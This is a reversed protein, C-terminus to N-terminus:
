ASPGEPRALDSRRRGSVLLLAVLGLVALGAVVLLLWGKGGGSTSPDAAAGPAASQGNANVEFAYTGSAPHGDASVVRWQVQYTGPESVRTLPQVVDNGQVSVRGSEVHAGSPSLVVVGLGYDYPPGDFTLRIEAPASAVTSGPAPTASVLQAHAGAPTAGLFALALAVAV